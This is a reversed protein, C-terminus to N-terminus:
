NLQYNEKILNIINVADQESCVHWGGSTKRMTFLKDELMLRRFTQRNIKIGSDKMISIIKGITFFNFDRM